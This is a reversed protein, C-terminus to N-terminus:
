KAYLCDFSYQTVNDHCKLCLRLMQQGFTSIGACRFKSWICAFAGVKCCILTRHRMSQCLYKLKMYVTMNIFTIPLYTASSRDTRIIHCKVLSEPAGSLPLIKCKREFCTRPMLSGTWRLKAVSLQNFGMAGDNECNSEHWTNHSLDALAVELATYWNLEDWMTMLLICSCWHFGVRAVEFELYLLELRLVKIWKLM